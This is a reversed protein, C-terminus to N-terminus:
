QQWTKNTRRVDPLSDKRMEEMWERDIPQSRRSLWQPQPMASHYAASFLYDYLSKQSDNNNNAIQIRVFSMEFHRKEGDTNCSLLNWTRMITEGNAVGLCVMRRRRRQRGDNSAFNYKAFRITSRLFLFRFRLLSRRFLCFNHAHRSRSREQMM